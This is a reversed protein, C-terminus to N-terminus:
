LVRITPDLQMAHSHEPDQKILVQVHEADIYIVDQKAIRQRCDM